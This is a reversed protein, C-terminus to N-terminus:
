ILFEGFYVYISLSFGVGLAICISVLIIDLIRSQACMYDGNLVDRIANVSAVGPLLPMIGSIILNDMILGTCLTSAIISVFAIFASVVCPYAIRSFNRCLKIAFTGTILGVLLIVFAEKLSNNLIYGFGFTSLAWSWILVYDPYTVSKHISELELYAEKAGIKDDCIKRSIDNVSAIKGLDITRTHVRKILTTANDADDVVSVYMGTTTTITEVTSFNYHKLIRYITDEVRFAEAGNRLLIEGAYMALKVYYASNM